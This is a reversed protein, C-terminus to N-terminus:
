YPPWGSRWLVADLQVGMAGVDMLLRVQQPHYVGGAAIIPVTFQAISKVVALAGPFVAQGYLRGQVVNNNMDPLAGRPPAISVASVKSALEEDLANVILVARDVPLRLIIPLEGGLSNIVASVLEVDAEPPLGLEIGSVGSVNELLNAMMEFDDICTFLVHVVIPVPSRAWRTGHKRQVARLGPNPYGTHLLFGGPFDVYRTGKASKRPRMSVPNTIFAGLLSLDLPGRPDPTFGLSGAANLLPPQLLLDYKPM